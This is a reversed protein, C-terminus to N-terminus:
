LSEESWLRISFADAEASDLAALPLPGFEGAGDEDLSVTAMHKGWALVAARPMPEAAAIVTLVCQAPEGPLPRAYVQVMAEGAPTEGLFSLLLTDPGIHGPTGRWGAVQRGRYLSDRLYAPLFVFLLSSQRGPGPDLVLSWPPMDQAAVVAPRPPLPTLEGRAEATLLALLMDHQQRCEACSQLHAWLDPQRAAADWGELEDNVYLDLNRRMVDCEDSTAPVDELIDKLLARLGAREYQNHVM